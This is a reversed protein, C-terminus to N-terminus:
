AAMWARVITSIAGPSMHLGKSQFSEITHALRKINKSPTFGTHAELSRLFEPLLVSCLQGELIVKSLSEFEERDAETPKEEPILIGGIIREYQDPVLRRGSTFCECPADIMRPIVYLSGPGRITIRSHDTWRYPRTPANFAESWEQESPADVSGHMACKVCNLMLCREALTTSFVVWEHECDRTENM